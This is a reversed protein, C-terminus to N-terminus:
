AMYSVFRWNISEASSAAPQLDPGGFAGIEHHCVVTVDEVAGRHLKGAIQCAFKADGADRRLCEVASLMSMDALAPHAEGEAFAILHQPFHLYAQRAQTIM